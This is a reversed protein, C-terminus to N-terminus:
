MYVQIHFAVALMLVGFTTHPLSSLDCVTGVILWRVCLIRGPDQTLNSCMLVSVLWAM